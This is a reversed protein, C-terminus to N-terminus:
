FTLILSLPSLSASVCPSPSAPEMGPARRPVRDWSELIVGRASPLPEVASGGLQGECSTRSCRPAGQGGLEGLVWGESSALLVEAGGERAM